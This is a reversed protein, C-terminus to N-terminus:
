KKLKENVIRDVESVYKEPIIWYDEITKPFFLVKVKYRLVLTAYRNWSYSEIKDWTLRLDKYSYKSQLGWTLKM